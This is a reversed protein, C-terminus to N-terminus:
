ILFQHFAVYLETSFTPQTSFHVAIRDPRHVSLAIPQVSPGGDVDVVVPGAPRTVPDSMFCGLQGCHNGTNHTRVPCCPHHVAVPGAVPAACVTVANVMVVALLLVLLVRRRREAHM